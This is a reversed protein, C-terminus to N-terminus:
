EISWAKLQIAQGEETQTVVPLTVFRQDNSLTLRMQQGKTPIYTDGYSFSREILKKLQGQKSYTWLSILAEAMVSDDGTGGVRMLHGDEKKFTKSPDQAPLALNHSDTIDTDLKFHLPQCAFGSQHSGEYNCLNLPDGRM